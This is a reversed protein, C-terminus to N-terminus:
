HIFWLTITDCILCALLLLSQGNSRCLRSDYSMCDQKSALDTRCPVVWDSDNKTIAWEKDYMCVSDYLKLNTMTTLTSSLSRAMSVLVFDSQIGPTPTLGIFLNHRFHMAKVAIEQRKTLSEYLWFRLSGLVRHMRLMPPEIDRISIIILYVSISVWSNWCGPALKLWKLNIIYLPLCLKPAM